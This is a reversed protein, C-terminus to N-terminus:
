LQAEKTSIEESLIFEKGTVSFIKRYGNSKLKLTAMIALKRVKPDPAETINPQCNHVTKFFIVPPLELLSTELLDLLLKLHKKQGSLKVPQDTSAMSLSDFPTDAPLFLLIKYKPINENFRTIYVKEYLLSM